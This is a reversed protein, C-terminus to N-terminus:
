EVEEQDDTTLYILAGILVKTLVLPWIPTQRMRHKTHRIKHQAETRDSIRIYTPHSRTALRLDYRADQHELLNWGFWFLAGTAYIIAVAIM